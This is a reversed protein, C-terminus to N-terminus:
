KRILLIRYLTPIVFFATLYGTLVGIVLVQGISFLVPHRAFLLAGSGIVTTVASLTVALPTQAKLKYCINYVMFIGYDISLGVVVMAAIVAPANFPKSMLGPIGLMALVATAPATLSLFALAFSRLLLFTLAFILVGALVALFGVEKSVARSIYSSLAKRSVIFSGPVKESVPELLELNRSTDPFYSVLQYQNSNEFLFKEQLQKLFGIQEPIGQKIETFYLNEFFPSFINESFDYKKRQQNM